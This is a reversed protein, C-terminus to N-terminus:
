NEEKEVIESFNRLRWLFETSKYFGCYQFRNLVLNGGALRRGLIIESIIEKPLAVTISFGQL